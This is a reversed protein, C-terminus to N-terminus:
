KSVFKDGNPIIIEKEYVDFPLRNRLHTKLAEKQLNSYNKNNNREAVQKLYKVTVM